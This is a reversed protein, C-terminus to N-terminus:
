GGKRPPAGATSGAQGRAPAVLCCFLGKAGIASGWGPVFPRAKRPVVRIPRQGGAPARCSGV